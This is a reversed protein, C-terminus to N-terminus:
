AARWRANIEYASPRRRELTVRVRKEADNKARHEAALFIQLAPVLAASLTARNEIDSPLLMMSFGPLDPSNVLLHHNARPSVVLRARKGGRLVSLVRRLLM